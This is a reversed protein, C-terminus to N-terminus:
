AASAEIEPPNALAEEIIESPWTRCGGCEFECGMSRYASEADKCGRAAAARIDCDRIVNCSCVIMRAIYASIRVM